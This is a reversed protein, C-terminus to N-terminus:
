IDASASPSTHGAVNMHVDHRAPGAVGVKHGGDSLRAHHRFIERGRVFFQHLHRPSFCFAFTASGHNMRPLLCFAFPLLSFRRLGGEKAKGRKGKAKQRQDVIQISGSNIASNKPVSTRISNPSPTTAMTTSNPFPTGPSTTCPPNVLIVIPQPRPTVMPM